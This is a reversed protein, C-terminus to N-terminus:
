SIQGESNMTNISTHGLTLYAENTQTFLNLIKANVYEKGKICTLLISNGHKIGQILGQTKEKLLLTICITNSWTKGGKYEKYNVTM